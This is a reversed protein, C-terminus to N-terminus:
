PESGGTKEDKPPLASLAKDIRALVANGSGTEAFRQHLYNIQLAADRLVAEVGRSLAASRTEAAPSDNKGKTAIKAVGNTPADSPRWIHGCKLCLHSRHPPNPWDATAEDVHQTECAPCFLILDIPRAEDREALLQALLAAAEKRERLMVNIKRETSGDIRQWPVNLREIVGGVADPAINSAPTM